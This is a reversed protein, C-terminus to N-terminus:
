AVSGVPRRPQGTAGRPIDPDEHWDYYDEYRYRRERATAATVVCGLRHAAVADLLAVTEALAGPDTGIGTVVVTTSGARGLTVSEPVHLLPPGDIVM